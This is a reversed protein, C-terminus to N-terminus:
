LACQTKQRHFATRSSFRVTEPNSARNWERVHCHEQSMLPLVPTCQQFLQQCQRHLSHLFRTWIHSSVASEGVRGASCVSLQKHLAKLKHSSLTALQYVIRSQATDWVM